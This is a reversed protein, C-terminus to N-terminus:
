LQIGERVLKAFGSAEAAITYNGLPLLPVRYRGADDTNITRELGTEVNKVTVSAGAIVAGESDTIVGQILGTTAQSQPMATNTSLLLCCACSLCISITLVLTKIKM